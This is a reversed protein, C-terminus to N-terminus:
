QHRCSGCSGIPAWAPGATFLSATGAAVLVALALLAIRVVRRM